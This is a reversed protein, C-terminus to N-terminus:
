SERGGLADFFRTMANAQELQQLRKAGSTAVYGFPTMASRATPRQTSSGSHHDSRRHSRRDKKKQLKRHAFKSRRSHQQREESEESSESSSGSGNDKEKGKADDDQMARLREWRTLARARRKENRLRLEEETMKTTKLLRM